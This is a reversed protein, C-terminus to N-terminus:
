PLALPLVIRAPHAADHLIEVKSAVAWKADFADAGTHSNREFRPSNTGSVILRIRAGVPFTVALPPLRVTVERPEGSELLVRTAAPAAAGLPGTASGARPAGGAGGPAAYSARAIGDALLMARGDDLVQCLRVAVDTDPADLRVSVTMTAAGELRIPAVLGDTTYVLVDSRALLPKQDRPGPLLGFLPLNAGGLTPVADAPDDLFSRPAEDARAPKDDIVGTAHLTLTKAVGGPRPWTAARHYGDQNIRWFRVREGDAWGGNGVGRLWKDFWAVAALGAEGAALPFQLDGQAAADVATHHWPGILLRSGARAAPGGEALLTNFTDIQRETGHDFWGTILLMPVDIAAPREALRALRYLAGSPDRAERIRAGTGFGLRDLCAVHHERLVGDAFYDDYRYGYSAVLPVSCVLHPPREAATQFQVVGLASPGWTGVKGDCWAQAATWEVVDYGDQGLAGPRAGAGAARSGFFGRWDAVVYAYHERDAVGSITEGGVVLGGQAIALGARVKTRDYPTQVVIAPYRGAKAPLHVDAALSKGDRMPIQVGFRDATWPTDATGPATPAPPGDNGPPADQARAPVVLLVLVVATMRM